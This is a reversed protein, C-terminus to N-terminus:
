DWTSEYWLCLFHYNLGGQKASLVILYPDLIFHILGLFPTAGSIAAISFPAKPNSEFITAM